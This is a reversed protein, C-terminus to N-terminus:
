FCCTTVRVMLNQVDNLGASESGPQLDEGANLYILGYILAIILTMLVRVFNYHPARWYFLFYKRLLERAQMGYSTAYKSDLSLPKTDQVGSSAVIEMKELSQKHLKGDRYEAPFDIDAPKFTTAMSGGTVELMWTAPNYGSKIPPVGPFSELYSILDQSNEGLSGFYTLRGGRQLLVLMDFAEFIEMSPQHITVVVSRNSNAVNRVARMVVAAARADLGSTPEDMFLVSPNGVLEVGISLRKRQEISLGEGGPEGVVKGSWPYLEITDLTSQVIARVQKDSVDNESLRLRAAFQLSELVTICPSHIDMQEVYGVVRSWIDPNVQRGNALIEGKIVGQTKRGAVVDMLTTKGAGSGGMLATLRSPEVYFDISKLLQLKGEIDKDESGKVVGTAKGGSPDNVFYSLGRCVISIPEFPVPQVEEVEQGLPGKEEKSFLKALKSFSKHARLMLKPKKKIFADVGGKTISEQDEPAVSPRPAPPNIYRLAFIGVITMFVLYGWNFGVAIWIWESDSFLAFESLIEDGYPSWAASTLENIALGRVGYSLPNLGYYVWILYDPISTRIITFGNTLMLLLLILSGLANARVMNPTVYALLRFVGALANSCSWTILLFIFFNSAERTLGSIFYVTLTYLISESTSSPLQSVALAVAYSWSPFFHNDRHKYFVGKTNFVFGMVPMSSMSLYIISLVCLSIVKRGQAYYAEFNGEGPPAVSAFFSSIILGMVVSQVMRAIYYAKDRKILLMQRKFTLKSLTWGSRSFRARALSNPNGRAADFPKKTLQDMMVRGFSTKRFENEIDSVSMLLKKPPNRTLEEFSRDEEKLGHAELLSGSAYTMQGVPTTVEQM